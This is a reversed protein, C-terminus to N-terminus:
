PRNVGPLKFSIALRKRDLCIPLENEVADHMNEIGGNIAYTQRVYWLFQDCRIQGVASEFFDQGVPTRHKLTVM